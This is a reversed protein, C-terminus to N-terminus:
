YRDKLEKTPILIRGEREDGLMTVFEPKNAGMWASYAVALVELEGATYLLDEPLNGQLLRHRTIEEFFRMPDPIHLGLDYLALQRQLRGELGQKPLPPRALWVSYCATTPSEMVQKESEELLYPQYGLNHLRKYLLFGRQMWQKCASSQSPTNYTPINRQWLEYEALRYDKWRSPKPTLQKQEIHELLLGQNPRQPANVAVFATKQGGVFALVEDLNGQGLAVPRLDYDLAAYGIARAGGSPDIGIFISPTFLM